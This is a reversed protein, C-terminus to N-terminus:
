RAHTAFFQWLTQAAWSPWDHGGQDITILVVGRNDACGATSTTVPGDTTAAPAGCQDVRRWFANVDPIPPGDIVSYGPGGGYPVLHDATGHIHMVSTPRPSPCANLQVGAVPGIAAFIDTTCALTYSMIGGNSMGTAYVRAPDIGVHRSIDDVVARIFGVDDVGDRGARGCCTQGDVNWANGLGDPYAVVFKTPDAVDDWHFDTEVQAASGTVGHMVLVLPASGPLGDPLHLRYSREHGGVTLHHLSTGKVFGSPMTSCGAVVLALGLLAALRGLM